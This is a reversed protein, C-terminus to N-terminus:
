SDYVSLCHQVLHFLIRIMLTLIYTSQFHILFPKCLHGM